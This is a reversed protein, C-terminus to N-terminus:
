EEYIARQEGAKDQLQKKHEAVERLFASAEGGPQPTRVSTTSRLADLTQELLREAHIVASAVARHLVEHGRRYLHIVIHRVLAPAVREFFHLGFGLWAGVAPRINAFIVRSKALEYHRASLLSALGVISIALLICFFLVM